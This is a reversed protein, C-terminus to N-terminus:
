NKKKFVIQEKQKEIVLNYFNKLAIYSDLIYLTKNIIFNSIVQIKNGIVSISYQFQAAKEPLSYNANKPYEIIEYGEPITYQMIIKKSIPYAYDVPYERKELKFPNEKIKENLLPSLYIMDGAFTINDSTLLTYEETIPKYIDKVNKLKYDSISEKTAEKIFKKEYDMSSGQKEIEKRKDFAAYDYYYKQVTGVISAKDINLIYMFFSKDKGLPKIIVMKGFNKYIIRGVSNYCRKPILGAPLLNETADLYYEKGNITVNAIVYNFKDITPHSPYIKGNDRTSILIPNVTIGNSKLLSILALNIEATTNGRKKNFIERNTRYSYKTNYGIWTLEDQIFKYIKIMKEYKSLNSTLLTDIKKTLFKSKKMKESFYYSNNLDKDIEKWTSAIEYTDGRYQLYSLEFEVKNKFDNTTTIYEEKKFAPINEAYWSYKTNQESAYKTKFHTNIKEFGKETINIHVFNPIYAVYESYKVPIDDYQFYWDSFIYNNSSFEIEIVSGKKVLPFAGKITLLRSFTKEKILDKNKLKSKIIEGNELNYTTAKFTNLVGNSYLPIIINSYKKGEDKLIKIIKHRKYEGNRIEGYDYLVVANASSDPEYYKMLLDEKSIKGFKVKKKQSLVIISNLLFIISIILIRRM